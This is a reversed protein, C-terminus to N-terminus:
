REEETSSIEWGLSDWSVDSGGVHEHCFDLATDLIFEMPKNCGPKLCTAVSKQQEIFQDAPM